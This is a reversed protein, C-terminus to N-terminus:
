SKEWEPTEPASKRPHVRPSFVGRSLLINALPQALLHRIKASSRARYLLPPSRQRACTRPRGARGGAALRSGCRPCSRPSCGSHLCGGPRSGASRPTGRLRARGGSRTPGGSSRIGGHVSRACNGAVLLAGHSPLLPLSWPQLLIASDKWAGDGKSGEHRDM